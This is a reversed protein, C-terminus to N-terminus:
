AAATSSVDRKKELTFGHRVVSSDARTSGGGRVYRRTIMLLAAKEHATAVCSTLRLAIQPLRVGRMVPALKTRSGACQGKSM